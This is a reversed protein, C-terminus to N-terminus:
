WDLPSYKRGTNRSFTQDSGQKQQITVKQSRNKEQAKVSKWTLMERKLGSISNTEVTESRGINKSGKDQLTKAQMPKELEVNKRM